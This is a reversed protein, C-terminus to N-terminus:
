TVSLVLHWSEFHVTFSFLYSLLLVKCIDNESLVACSLIVNALLITIVCKLNIPMYICVCVIFVCWFIYLPVMISYLVKVRAM